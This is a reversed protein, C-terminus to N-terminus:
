EKKVSGGAAVIAAVNAAPVKGSRGNPLVVSVMGGDKQADPKKSGAEVGSTRRGSQRQTAIYTEIDNELMKAMQDIKYIATEPVDTLTALMTKYKAEDEKRLVGGELAKGVRQRVRNIDAQAKNAESYPNFAALGAVPGIYQENAKLIERLDKISDSASRSEAIKDVAGQPLSKGFDTFGAAVLDPLYEGFEQNTMRDLIVPNDIISKVVSQRRPDVPKVGNGSGMSKPAPRANTPKWQGTEEDFVNVTEGRGGDVVGDRFIPTKPTPAAPRLDNVDIGTIGARRLGAVTRVNPDSIGSMLKDADATQLAKALADAQATADARASAAKAIGLYEGSRQDANQDIAFKGLDIKQKVSDAAIKRARDEAAMREALLDELTQQPANATAAGVLGWNGM